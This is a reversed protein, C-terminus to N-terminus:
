EYHFHLIVAQDSKEIPLYVNDIMDATESHLYEHSTKFKKGSSYRYRYYFAGAVFVRNIEVQKRFFSGLM